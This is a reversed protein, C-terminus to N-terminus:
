NETLKFLNFYVSCCLDAVTKLAIITKFLRTRM